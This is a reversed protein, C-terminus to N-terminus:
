THSNELMKAVAKPKPPTIRASPTAASGNGGLNKIILEGLTQFAEEVNGGDKASTFYFPSNYNQAVKELEPLGFAHQEKLDNKNAVFVSPVNKGENHLSDIWETLHELTEMRTLDCVLLAGKAGKLYTPHLLKRFSVQGMIDWIIMNLYFDKQLEPKKVVISKKSTRTGITLLYDENFINKVFRQILSTKGVAGDGLLCVKIKLNVTESM